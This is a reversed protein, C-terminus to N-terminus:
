VQFFSAPLIPKPWAAEVVKMDPACLHKDGALLSLDPNFPHWSASDGILQLDTSGTGALTSSGTLGALCNELPPSVLLRSKGM